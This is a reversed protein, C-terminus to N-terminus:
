EPSCLGRLLIQTNSMIHGQIDIEDPDYIWLVLTGEIISGMAISANKASSAQFEGTNIGQQILNELLEMNRKYFSSIFKRILDRRFALVLFEYILPMWKLMNQVDDAAREAYSLLREEASRNDDLLTKLDRLEPEFVKELLSLIIADKSEFYWYLAGKSLGSAEAIDAMRTKHFGRETFTDRAAELIQAKREESVDNKPSM